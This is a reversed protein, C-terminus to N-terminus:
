LSWLLRLVCRLYTVYKYSSKKQVAKMVHLEFSAYFSGM